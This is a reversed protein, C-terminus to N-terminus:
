PTKLNQVIEDRSANDGFLRSGDICEEIRYSGSQLRRLSSLHAFSNLLRGLEDAISRIYTGKSCSVEIALKPYSYSLLKAEVRVRVSKREVEIGSRALTYLKKGGVKKASYMPPIQEIEGRFKAIAEEVEQLTPRYSSRETVVGERDFTDTAEGLQLEALYEKDEALLKDSLKTFSRGVLMVMVGTALPDLTGAHGIKKVGLIKRLRGVLSFSSKGLPKDVLLIGEVSAPSM